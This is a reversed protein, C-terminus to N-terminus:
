NGVYFPFGLFFFQFLLLFERIFHESKRHFAFNAHFYKAFCVQKTLLQFEAFISCSLLILLVQLFLFFYLLYVFIDKTPIFIINSLYFDTYYAILFHLPFLAPFLTLNQAHKHLLRQLSFAFLIYYYTM